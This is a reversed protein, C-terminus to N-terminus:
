FAIPSLDDLKTSATLSTDELLMQQSEGACGLAGGDWQSCVRSLIPARRSREMFIKLTADMTSSRHAVRWGRSDALCCVLWVRSQVLRHRHGIQPLIEPQQGGAPFDICYEHHDADHRCDHGPWVGASLCGGVTCQPYYGAGA